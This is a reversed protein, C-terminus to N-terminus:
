LSLKQIEWTETPAVAKKSPTPHPPARMAEKIVYTTNAQQQPPAEPVIYMLNKTRRRTLCLSAEEKTPTADLVKTDMLTLSLLATGSTAALVIRRDKPEWWENKIQITSPLMGEVM